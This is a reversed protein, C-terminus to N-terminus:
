IFHDLLIQIYRSDQNKQIQNKLSNLVDNRMHTNHSIIDLLSKSYNKLWKLQFRSYDFSEPSVLFDYEADTGIYDKMKLDNLEGKLYLAGFFSLYNKAYEVYRNLSKDIRLNEMRIEIFSNILSQYMKPQTIIGTNIGLVVQEIRNEISLEEKQDFNLVINRAVDTLFFAYPSIYDKQKQNLDIHQELYNSIKNSRHEPFSDYVLFYLYYPFDKGLQYDESGDERLKKLQLILFEEVTSLAKLSLGGNFSVRQVLLYLNNKYHLRDPFFFLITRIVKQITKESVTIYRSCFFASEAEDLLEQQFIYNQKNTIKYNIVKDCLRILYNDIKSHDEFKFYEMNYKKELTKLDKIKFTKSIYVFDYYDIFFDDPIRLSEFGFFGTERTADYHAKEFRLMLSRRMYEKVEVFDSILLYNEYIFRMNDRAYSEAVAESSMGGLTVTENTINKQTKGISFFLRIIDRDIFDNGSLFSLFKYSEKFKYPMSDFVDEIKFNQMEAKIKELFQQEFFEAIFYNNIIRKYLHYRNIQSFYHIHLYPEETSTGIVSSYVEYAEDWRGLHVLYYAKKYDDNLNKSPKKLYEEIELYDSNFIFNKIQYETDLVEFFRIYKHTEGDQLRIIENNKFFLIISKMKRKTLKSLGETRRESAIQIQKLYDYGNLEYRNVNGEIRFEYDNEFVTNLDRKRIYRLKFLPKLKEYVFEIAGKVDKLSDNRRVQLIMDMVKNYRGLFDDKEFEDLSAADLIRVGRKEYYIKDNQNIAHPDTRIFFPNVYSEEQSNKVWNLLLNVNYDRLSYGIFVVTHTSLISKTLNSILSFNREYDMYDQEKLVINRGKFGKSFDGHVKVLSRNSLSTVVDKDNSVLSFYQGRKYWAKEILDDYNTSLIHVPHLALIKNHIINTDKKVKFVNELIADYADEGKVDYFVQPIRLLEDSPIEKRSDLTENYLGEYFTGVLTSWKPYESIASVGAGVFFVLRNQKSAESLDELYEAVEELYNM